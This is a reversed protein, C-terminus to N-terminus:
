PREADARLAALFPQELTARLALLEPDWERSDDAPAGAFGQYHLEYLVYLALQLDEGYPDATAEAGDTVPSGGSRLAEVVGASVPGRPEPLRPRTLRSRAPTTM